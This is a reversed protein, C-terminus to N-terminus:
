KLERNFEELAERAMIIMKNRSELIDDFNAKKTIPDYAPLNPPNAIQELTKELKEISLGKISLKLM